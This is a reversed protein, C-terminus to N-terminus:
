LRSSQLTVLCGACQIVSSIWWSISSQLAHQRLDLFFFFHLSILSLHFVTARSISYFMFTYIWFHSIWVVNLELLVAAPLIIANYYLNPFKFTALGINIEKSSNFRYKKIRIEPFLWDPFLQIKLSSCYIGFTTRPKLIDETCHESTMLAIRLSLLVLVEIRM